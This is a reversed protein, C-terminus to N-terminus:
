FAVHSSALRARPLAHRSHLRASARARRAVRKSNNCKQFAMRATTAARADFISARRANAGSGRASLEDEGRRADRPSEMARANASATALDEFGEVRTAKGRASSKKISKEGRGVVAATRNGELAGALCGSLRGRRADAVAARARAIDSRFDVRTFVTALASLRTSSSVRLCTLAGRSRTSGGEVRARRTAHGRTTSRASGKKEARTSEDGISREIRRRGGGSTGGRRARLDGRSPEVRELVVVRVRLVAGAAVALVFELLRVRHADDRPAACAFRPGRDNAPASSTAINSRTGADIGVYRVAAAAGPLVDAGLFNQLTHPNTDLYLQARHPIFNQPFFHLATCASVRHAGAANRDITRDTSRRRRRPKKGSEENGLESRARANPTVSRRGGPSIVTDTARARQSRVRSSVRHLAEHIGGHRASREIREGGRASGGERARRTADRRTARSSARGDSTRRRGDNATRRARRGVSTTTTRRGAGHLDAERVVLEEAAHADVAAHVALPLVGRRLSVRQEVEGGRLEELALEGDSAPLVRVDRFIEMVDAGDLREHVGVVEERVRVRVVRLARSVEVDQLDVRARQGIDALVAALLRIRHVVAVLVAAGPAHGDFPDDVRLRDLSYVDGRPLALRM